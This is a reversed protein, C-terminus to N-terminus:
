NTTGTRRDVSIFYSKKYKIQPPLAKFNVANINNAVNLVAFNTINEDILVNQWLCLGEFDLLAFYM